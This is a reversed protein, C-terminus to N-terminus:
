NACCYCCIADVPAGGSDYGSSGFNLGSNCEPCGGRCGMKDMVRAIFKVLMLEDPNEATIIVIIVLTVIYLLGTVSM